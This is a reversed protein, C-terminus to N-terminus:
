DMDRVETLGQSWGGGGAKWSFIHLSHGLTATLGRM